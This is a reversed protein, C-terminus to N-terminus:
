SDEEKSGGPDAAATQDSPGDDELFVAEADLVLQQLRAIEKTSTSLQEVAEEASLTPIEQVQQKVEKPLHDRMISLGFDKLDKKGESTMPDALAIILGIKEVAGARMAARVIGEKMETPTLADPIEFKTMRMRSRSGRFWEQFDDDTSINAIVIDASMGAAEAADFLHLGQEYGTRIERKVQARIEMRECIQRNIEEPTLKAVTLGDM